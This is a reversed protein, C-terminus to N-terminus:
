PTGFNFPNRSHDFQQVAKSAVVDYFQLAPLGPFAFAALAFSLEIELPLDGSRSRTSDQSELELHIGLGSM